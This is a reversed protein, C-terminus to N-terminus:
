CQNLIVKIDTPTFKLLVYEPSACGDPHYQEMWPEWKDAKLTPDDIVEAKCTLIVGGTPDSVAIEVADNALINQVKDSSRYTQMYLNDLSAKSLFGILTLHVGKEEMTGLVVVNGNKGIFADAENRCEKPMDKITGIYYSM